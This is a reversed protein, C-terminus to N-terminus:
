PAITGFENGLYLNAGDAAEDNLDFAGSKFASNTAVVHGGAELHVGSAGSKTLANDILRIATSDSKVYIGDGLTKKVTNAVVQSDDLTELSFGTGANRAANGAVVHGSGAAILYARGGADRVDNDFVSMSAEYAYIGRDEIDRLANDAIVSSDKSSIGRYSDRVSNKVCTLRASDMYAGIGVYARRIDNKSVVCDFCSGGDHQSLIVGHRSFFQPPTSWLMTNKSVTTTTTDALTVAAECDVFRCGTVLVDSSSFIRVGDDEARFEIKKVTIESSM